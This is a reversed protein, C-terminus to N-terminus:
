SSGSRPSLLPKFAASRPFWGPTPSQASGSVEPLPATVYTSGVEEKQGSNQPPIWLLSPRLCWWGAAGDTQPHNQPQGRAMSGPLNPALTQRVDPRKWAGHWRAALFPAPSRWGVQHATSLLGVKTGLCMRGSSVSKLPPLCSSLRQGSVPCRTSSRSSPGHAAPTLLPALM